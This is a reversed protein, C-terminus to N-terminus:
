EEKPPAKTKPKKPAKAKGSKDKAPAKAKAKTKAPAAQVEREGRWTELKDMLGASTISTTFEPDNQRHYCADVFSDDLDVSGFDQQCQIDRTWASARNANHYWTDSYAVERSTARGKGTLPGSWDQGAVEGL